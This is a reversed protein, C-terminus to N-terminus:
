PVHWSRIELSSARHVFNMCSFAKRGWAAPVLKGQTGPAQAERAAGVKDPLVDLRILM